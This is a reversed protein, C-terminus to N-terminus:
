AKDVNVELDALAKKVKAIPFMWSRHGTKIVPFFGIKAFYRVRNPALGTLAAIQSTDAYEQALVGRKNTSKNM